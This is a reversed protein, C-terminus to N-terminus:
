VVRNMKRITYGTWIGERFYVDTEIIAAAAEESEVAFLLLSASMDDFAGAAGVVGEAALKSIRELHNERYPVRKEAAGEVLTAEVVYCTTIETM